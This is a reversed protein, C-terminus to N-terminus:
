DGARCGCGTRLADLRLVRGGQNRLAFAYKVPAGPEVLGLDHATEEFVLRPGPLPASDRGTCSALALALVLIAILSARGIM